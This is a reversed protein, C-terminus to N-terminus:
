WVQWIAIILPFIYSYILNKDEIENLEILAWEELLFIMKSPLYFIFFLFSAAVLNVLTLVVNKDLIRSDQYIIFDWSVTFSIVSFIFIFFNGLWEKLDDNKSTDLSINKDRNEEIDEISSPFFTLILFLIILEKIIALLIAFMFFVNHESEINEINIGMSELTWMLLIIGLVLHLMWSFTAFGGVKVIEKKEIFHKLLRKQVNPLKISYGLVELISISIFLIALLYNKYLHNHILKLNQLLPQKLFLQYIVFLLNFILGQQHILLKVIKNNIM